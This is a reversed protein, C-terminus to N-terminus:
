LKMEMHKGTLTNTFQVGLSKFKEFKVAEPRKIQLKLKKGSANNTCYEM